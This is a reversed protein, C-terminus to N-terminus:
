ANGGLVKGIRAMVADLRRGAQRSTDALANAKSRVEDLEQALKSRDKRLADTEGQLTLAKKERAHVGSMAAELQRLSGEFRELAADIKLADSM